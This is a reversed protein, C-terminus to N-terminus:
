FAMFREDYDTVHMYTHMSILPILPCRLQKDKVGLTHLEWDLILQM